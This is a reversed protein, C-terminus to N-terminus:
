WPSPGNTRAGSAGAVTKSPLQCWTAPVYSPAVTRSNTSPRWIPFPVGVVVGISYSMGDPSM